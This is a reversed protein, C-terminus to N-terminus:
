GGFLGSWWAMLAATGVVGLAGTAVTWLLTSKSVTDAGKVADAASKADEAIRRIDKIEADLAAKDKVAELQAAHRADTAVKNDAEIKDLRGNVGQIASTVGDLQAKVAALLSGGSPPSGSM